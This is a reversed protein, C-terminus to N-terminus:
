DAILQKVMPIVVNSWTLENQILERASALKTEIVAPDENRLAKIVKSLSEASGKEFLWGLEGDRLLEKQPAVNSAIIPKNFAMYELPKLASVLECVPDPKRPIICVDIVNLYDKVREHPVRGTFTVQERVGLEIAQEALRNLIVDNSIKGDVPNSGGVIILQYSKDKLLALAKVLIDLGEYDVLAGVYGLTYTGDASCLSDSNEKSTKADDASCPAANPVLFINSRQAGREILKAQMANNLTYIKDASCALFTELEFQENYKESGEWNPDRSIKSIEWFGRVEYHFPLGLKKSAIYAPLAVEFNSAALVAGPRYVRFLNEFTATMVQIKKLANVPSTFNDWPSHIYEVGEINKQIDSFDTEPFFDWPRGQRVFCITDLGHGNLAEAIGQTRVAYGNSAYSMGHSVVYGVRRSVPRMTKQEASNMAIAQHAFKIIQEARNM